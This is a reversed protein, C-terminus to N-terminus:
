TPEINFVIVLPRIISMGIQKIVYSPVDEPTKCIKGNLKSLAKIVDLPDIVFSEM